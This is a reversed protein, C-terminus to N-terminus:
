AGHMVANGACVELQEDYDTTAQQSLVRLNRLKPRNRFVRSVTRQLM